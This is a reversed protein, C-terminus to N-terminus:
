DRLKTWSSEPTTQTERVSRRGIANMRLPMPRLSRWTAWADMGPPSSRNKLARGRFEDDPWEYYRVIDIVTTKVTSDGDAAVIADHFGPPAAADSSAVLRSGILVGDAGLMMAAALGRGDAIGGAAVLLTDPAVDALFDAVEPVLTLTSRNGSVAPRVARRSLVDAGVDVAERAHAM